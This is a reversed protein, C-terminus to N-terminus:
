QGVAQKYLESQEIEMENAIPEDIVLETVILKMHFNNMDFAFYFSGLEKEIM